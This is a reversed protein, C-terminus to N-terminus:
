NKFPIFAPKLDQIKRKRESFSEAKNGPKKEKKRPLFIMGNEFKTNEQNKEHFLEQDATLLDKTSVDKSSM